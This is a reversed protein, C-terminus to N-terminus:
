VAVARCSMKKACEPGIGSKVSEPVTLARGCRGCQGEHHLAFGADTMGKTDNDWVRRIVRSLLRVPITDSKYPSKATLVVEGRETNLMGVYTYSATNDPGTLLSVFYADKYRGTGKKYCIKYTYHPKANNSTQFSEPCEVTLIARGATIFEKTIM